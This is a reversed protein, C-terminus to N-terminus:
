SGHRVQSSPTMRVKRLTAAVVFRLLDFAAVSYFRAHRFRTPMRGDDRTMALVRALRRTAILSKAGAGPVRGRFTIVTAVADVERSSAARSALVATYDPADPSRRVVTVEAVNRGLLQLGHIASGGSFLLHEAGVYASLQDALPLREPHMVQHGNRRFYRDLEAEGLLNHDPALGSRSVFITGSRVVRGIRRDAHSTLASLYEADPDLNRSNVGAWEPQPVVSLRSFRTPETVVCIRERPVGFWENISWFWAPAGRRGAATAYVLTAQPDATVSGIIRSSFDRIQHGFHNYVAGIWFFSAGTAEHFSTPSDPRTDARGYTSSHWYGLHDEDPWDPWIPGGKHERDSALLLEAFPVVVVDRFTRAEAFSASRTPLHTM